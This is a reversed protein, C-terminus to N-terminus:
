RRSVPRSSDRTCSTSAYALRLPQEAGVARGVRDVRFRDLEIEVVISGLRAPGFRGCSRTASCLAFAANWVASGVICTGAFGSFPALAALAPAAPRAALV